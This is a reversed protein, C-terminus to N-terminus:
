FWSELVTSHFQMLVLVLLILAAVGWPSGGEEPSQYAQWRRREWPSLGFGFFKEPHEVNSLWKVAFLLILPTILLVWNFSEETAEIAEEYSSYWQFGLFFLILALILLVPYPLPTLSFAEFISSNTTRTPSM